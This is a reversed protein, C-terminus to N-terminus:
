KNTIALLNLCCIGATLDFVDDEMVQTSWDLILDSMRQSVFSSTRMRAAILIGHRLSFFNSADRVAAITHIAYSIDVATAAHSM